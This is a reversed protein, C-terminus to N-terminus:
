ASCGRSQAAADLHSLRMHPCICFLHQAVIGSCAMCGLCSVHPVDTWCSCTPHKAIHTHLANVWMPKVGAREFAVSVQALQQCRANNSPPPPTAHPQVQEADWVSKPQLLRRRKKLVVANSDDAAVAPPTPPSSGYFRRRFDESSRWFAIMMLQVTIVAWAIDLLPPPASASAMRPPHGGGPHSIERPRSSCSTALLRPPPLQQLPPPPRSPCRTRLSVM